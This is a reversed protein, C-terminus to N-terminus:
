LRDKSADDRRWGAVTFGTYLLLLFWQVTSAILYQAHREYFLKREAVRGELTIMGDLRTHEWQLYGLLLGALAVLMLRLLRFRRGAAADWGALALAPMGFLNLYESVRQTILGQERASGLYETGIPIVVAAYFTFGGLWLGLAFLLLTRRPVTM